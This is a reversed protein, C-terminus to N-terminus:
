TLADAAARRLEWVCTTDSRGAETERDRPVEAIKSFGLVEPIRASRDNTDAHRLEVADVEPLAFAAAVLARSARTAIGRGTHEAHVWYGLELRRPGRDTHLGAAGVLAHDDVVAYTFDTGADWALVIDRIWARANSPDFGDVWSMWPSLHERSAEVAAVIAEVDDVRWRRLLLGEADLEEPPAGSM